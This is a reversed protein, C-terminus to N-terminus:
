FQWMVGGIEYALVAVFALATIIYAVSPSRRQKTTAPAPYSAEGCVTCSMSLDDGLVGDCAACVIVAGYKLRRLEACVFAYERTDFYEIEHWENGVGAYRQVFWRGSGAQRVRLFHAGTPGDNQPPRAEMRRAQLTTATAM